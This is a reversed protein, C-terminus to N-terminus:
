AAGDHIGDVGALQRACLTLRGRHEAQLNGTGNGAHWGLKQDQGVGPKVTAAAVLGEAQQPGRNWLFPSLRALPPPKTEVEAANSIWVAPRPASHVGNSELHAPTVVSQAVGVKENGPM